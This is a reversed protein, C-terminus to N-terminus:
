FKKFVKSELPRPELPSGGILKITIQNKEALNSIPTMGYCYSILYDEKAEGSDRVYKSPLFHAVLEFVLQYQDAM